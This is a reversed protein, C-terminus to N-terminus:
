LPAREDPLYLTVQTGPSTRVVDIRARGEYLLALRERLNSLGVGEAAADSIGIGSDSITIRVSQGDREARVSLTGGEVKPELGHKVANEVIPQLLMPALPLSQLEYPVDVSYHLRDGMRIKLLHLYHELLDIEQGLTGNESRSASLSRRLYSIFHDLM